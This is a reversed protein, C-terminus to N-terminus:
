TISNSRHKEADQKRKARLRKDFEVLILNKNVYVEKDYKEYTDLNLRRMEKREEEEAFLYISNMINVRM